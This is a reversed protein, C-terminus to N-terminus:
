EAATRLIGTLPSKTQKLYTDFGTIEVTYETDPKLDDLTWTMAAPMPVFYFDSWFKYKSVPFGNKKVVLSYHHIEEGDLAQPFTVTAGTTTIGTFSAQANQPWVPTDATQYRANTYGFSARNSPDAIYYILQDDSTSSPVNFFDGTMINFPLVAVANDAYVEVMYFQAFDQANPPVSGYTMGDELEVYSLTGCGFSTFFYQSCSRPDNIPYHSHGSFDIVQPFNNLVPSLQATGWATSGYVTGQIHRHNFVFVPKEPDETKANNLQKYLSPLRSLYSHNDDYSATIFHFGNINLDQNAPVGLWEECDAITNGGGIDHNDYVYLLPTGPKMHNAVVENVLDAQVKKGSTIIDGAFAFADISDYPQSEAYAYSYEFLKELRGYENCDATDQMHIDSCVVFRLVPDDTREIAVTNGAITAPYLNLSSLITVMALILLRLIHMRNDFGKM